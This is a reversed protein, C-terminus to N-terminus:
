IISKYTSLLHNVSDILENTIKMANIDTIETSYIDTIKKKLKMNVRSVTYNLLMEELMETDNLEIRLLGNETIRFDIHEFIISKLDM